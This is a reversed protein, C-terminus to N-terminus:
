RRTAIGSPSTRFTCLLSLQPEPSKVAFGLRSSSNENTYASVKRIPTSSLSQHLLPTLGHAPIATGGHPSSSSRGAHASAQEHAHPPRPTTSWCFCTKDPYQQVATHRHLLDTTTHLPKEPAHPPHPSTLSRLSATHRHHHIATHRHRFSSTPPLCFLPLSVFKFAWATFGWMSKCTGSRGRVSGEGLSPPLRGTMQGASQM